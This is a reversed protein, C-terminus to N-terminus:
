EKEEFLQVQYVSVELDGLKWEVSALGAKMCLNSLFQKPEPLQKWVQPLFTANQYGKKITVGDIGPRLKSILEMEDSYEIEIPQTLISVEILTASLEDSSLPSFRGDNFAAHKANDIIGQSITKVPEINGICGRLAGKKHLTVFTGRNKQKMTDSLQKKLFLLDSKKGQLESVISQRALKLFLAGDQRSFENKM